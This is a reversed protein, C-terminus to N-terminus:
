RGSTQKWVIYFPLGVLVLINLTHLAAAARFAVPQRERHIVLNRGLPM